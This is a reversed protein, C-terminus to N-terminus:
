LHNASAPRRRQEWEHLLSRTEADDPWAQLTQRLDDGAETLRDLALLWRARERRLLPPLGFSQELMRSLDVAEAWAGRGAAQLAGEQLTHRAQDFKSRAETSRGQEEAQTAWLQYIYAQQGPNWAFAPQQEVYAFLTDTNKWVHVQRGGLWALAAVLLLLVPVWFSKVAAPRDRPILAVVFAGILVLHPLYVHRDAVSWHPWQALGLVPLALASSGLVVGTTAPWRRRGLWVAALGLAVVAALSIIMPGNVLWVPLMPNNPTQGFPWLLDTWVSGLMAAGMKLRVLLDVEALTPPAPYLWPTAASSKWTIYVSVLAPILFLAHRGLWNGIERGPSRWTPACRFIWLDAAILWLGYTAGVPYTLYSALALLWAWIFLRTASAAEMPDIARLYFWFSGLLFIVMLPYPTATVWCAPEVHAPHVAWVAAGVWALAGATGEPLGPRLRILLRKLVPRFLLVAGLHLLLSVGHWASPNFGFGAHIGRYLLWPLPKFRLATDGNLLKTVLERSWPETILPNQTVNVPDDWRVFDYGFAPWFVAAVLLTLSVTPGLQGRFLRDTVNRWM